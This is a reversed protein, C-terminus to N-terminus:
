RAAQQRPKLRASAMRKKGRNQEVCADCLFGDDDRGRWYARGCVPCDANTRGGERDDDYSMEGPGATWSDAM